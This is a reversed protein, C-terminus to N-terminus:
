KKVKSGEKVLIQEIRGVGQAVVSVQANSSMKGTKAVKYSSPLNEMRTYKVTFEPLTTPLVVSGSQTTEKKWPVTCSSLLVILLITAFIKKM